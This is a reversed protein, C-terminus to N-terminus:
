KLVQKELDGTGDNPLRTIGLIKAMVNYVEVNKFPPITQNKKFAPGWAYFVANMEKILAPNYGHAGPGNKLNFTKPWKALLVIDGIRNYKDDAAGYHLEAPVDKKLYATYNTDTIAQFQQWAPLIDAPDKAHINVTAGLVSVVFKEKSIFAPILLPHENDIRAMGHDSVLIFNVPLGSAAAVKALKGVADDIFQVAKEVEPADPGNAHGAHDTEPFYFSIFHPRKEEPLQLWNKVAAVRDEIYVKKDAHESYYYTPRVGKILSAADVWYFSATLLQQKEATVWLPEEGFFTGDKPKFMEKRAPDYFTNGTIGSHSPYLGSMIAFHNPHTVSPYSPIMYAAHVGEKALRLLNTAHYKQAYDYRFGDASIVILYPKKIQDKSNTRGPTTQQLSDAQAVGKGAICLALIATILHKNM